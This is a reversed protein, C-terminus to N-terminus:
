VLFPIFRKKVKKMYSMYEDGLERILVKEEKIARDWLIVYIIATAAMLSIFSRFSISMAIVIILSAGYAPHRVLKFAGKTVLVHRKKTSINLYISRGITVVSWERLAIGLIMLTIGPFFVWEPLIWIGAYDSIYSFLFTLFFSIIPSLFLLAIDKREVADTKRKSLALMSMVLLDEFIIWALFVTFFTLTDFYSSFVPHM